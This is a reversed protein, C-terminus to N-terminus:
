LSLAFIDLRKYEESTTAEQAMSSAAYGGLMAGGLGNWDILWYSCWTCADWFLLRRLWRCRFQFIQTYDIGEFVQANLM